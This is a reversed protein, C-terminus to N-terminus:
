ALSVYCALVSFLPLQKESLQTYEEPRAAQAAFLAAAAPVPIADSASGTVPCYYVIFTGFELFNFFRVKAIKNKGLACFLGGASSGGSAKQM